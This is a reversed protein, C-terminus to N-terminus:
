ILAMGTVTEKYIIMNVLYWIKLVNVVNVKEILVKCSVVCRDFQPKGHNERSFSLLM